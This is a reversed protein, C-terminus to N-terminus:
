GETEVELGVPDLRPGSAGIKELFENRCNMALAVVSLAEDIEPKMYYRGVSNLVTALADRNKRSLGRYVTVPKDTEIKM